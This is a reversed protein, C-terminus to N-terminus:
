FGFGNAWTKYSQFCGDGLTHIRSPRERHEGDVALSHLWRQIMFISYRWGSSKLNRDTAAKTADHICRQCDRSVQAGVREVHWRVGIRCRHPGNLGMNHGLRTELCVATCLPAHETAPSPVDATVASINASRLVGCLLSSFDFIQAAPSRTPRTSTATRFRVQHTM